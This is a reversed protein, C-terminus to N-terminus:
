FCAAAKKEPKSERQYTQNPLLLARLSTWEVKVAQTILNFKPTGELLNSGIGTIVKLLIGTQTVRTGRSGVGGVVAEVV